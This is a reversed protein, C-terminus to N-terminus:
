SDLDDPHTHSKFNGGILEQESYGFLECVSRNVQLFRGDLDILAMGITAHDFASRFREESQRLAAQERIIDARYCANELEAPLQHLYGHNKVLYSAAGLKLAQLAVEEDGQGTVLVVPTDLARAQRMEKLVELANLGPLRYDLLIVDYRNAEGAQSLRQLAEAGNPAVDLQIHPAYRRFHRLTLDIDSDYHEAYLAKLTRSQRTAQARRACLANELTFPLRELYNDRKSVYDDAGAKIATVATREDGMGTIVVVALPMGRERIYTLLSVGDGDPLQLDTLVMDFSFADKGSLRSVAESQTAVVELEFEPAHKRLRRRALDADNPNDEVYLIKM